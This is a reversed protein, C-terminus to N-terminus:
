QVLSETGIEKFGNIIIRLWPIDGLLLQSLLSVSAILFVTLCLWLLIRFLTDQHRKLWESLLKRLGKKKDPAATIRIDKYLETFRSYSRRSVKKELIRYSFAKQSAKPKLLDKLIFSCQVACEREGKKEDLETLDIQYSFYIGHDKSLHIQNQKLILYLIPYPLKSSICALILNICIEECEALTYSEGSYFRDLPRENKYDFVMCFCGNDSFSEVYSDESSIGAQEFIELYKKATVHDKIVLLTYLGGSATSRDQCILIDNVPSKKVIRICELYMKQTQYYM